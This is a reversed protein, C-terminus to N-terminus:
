PFRDRHRRAHDRRGRRQRNGAHGEHARDARRADAVDVALVLEIRREVIHGVGLEVEDDGARMVGHQHHFGFRLFQAFVHHEAGHHETMALHLM